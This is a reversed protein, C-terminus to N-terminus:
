QSKSDIAVADAETMMGTMTDVETIMGNMVMTVSVGLDKRDAAHSIARAPGIAKNQIMAIPQTSKVLSAFRKTQISDLQPVLEGPDQVIIQFLHIRDQASQPM